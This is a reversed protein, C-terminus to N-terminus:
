FSFLARAFVHTCTNVRTSIHSCTDVRTRVVVCKNARAREHMYALLGTHLICGRRENSHRVGRGHREHAFRSVDYMICSHRACTLSLACTKTCARMDQHMRAHRPAHAAYACTKTCARMDQHMRAHRPAHACTKTCAARTQHMGSEHVMRRRSVRTSVHATCVVGNGHKHTHAQTHKAQTRTHAGRPAQKGQGQSSV